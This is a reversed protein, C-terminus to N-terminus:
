KEGGWVASVYKKRGDIEFEALRLRVCLDFLLQCFVSGLAATIAVGIWDHAQYAAYAFAGTSFAAFLTISKCIRSRTM